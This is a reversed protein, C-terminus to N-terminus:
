LLHFEIIVEWYAEHSENANINKSFKFYINYADDFFAFLQSKSYLCFCTFSLFIYFLYCMLYNAFNYYILLRVRICVLSEADELRRLALEWRGRAIYIMEMGVCYWM